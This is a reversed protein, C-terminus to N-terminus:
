QLLRDFTDEAWKEGYIGGLVGFAFGGLIAGVCAGVPGMIFSGMTGM